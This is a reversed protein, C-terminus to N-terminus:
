SDEDFKKLDFGFKELAKIDRRLGETEYAEHFREVAATSDKVRQQIDTSTMFRKWEDETAFVVMALTSTVIVQHEEPVTGAAYVRGMFDIARLQLKEEIENSM